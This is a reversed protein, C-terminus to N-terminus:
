IVGGDSDLALRKMKPRPMDKVSSLLGILNRVSDFLPVIYFLLRDPVIGERCNHPRPGSHELSENVPSAPESHLPKNTKEHESSTRDLKVM